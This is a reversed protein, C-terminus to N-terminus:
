VFDQAPVELNDLARSVAAGLDVGSGRFYLPGCGDALLLRVEAVGRASVPGPAALRAALRDLERAAAAIEGLRPPIRTSGVRPQRRADGVLALVRRALAARARPGILTQARLALAAAAEPPAGRALQRELSGARWRAAMRERLRARRAVVSGGDEADTVLVVTAM